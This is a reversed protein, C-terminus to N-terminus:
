QAELYATARQGWAIMWEVSLNCRVCLLGRIRGTSHDHDVSLYNRRPPQKCIACVGGQAELLNEYEGPNLGFRRALM